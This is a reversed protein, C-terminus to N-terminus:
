QRSGLLYVIILRKGFLGPNWAQTSIEPSKKPNRYRKQTNGHPKQPKQASIQTKRAHKQPKLWPNRPNERIKIRKKLIKMRNRLIKLHNEHIQSPNTPSKHHNKPANYSTKPTSNLVKKHCFFYICFLCFPCFSRLQPTIGSMGTGGPIPQVSGPTSLSRSFTLSSIRVQRHNSVVPCDASSKTGESTSLM